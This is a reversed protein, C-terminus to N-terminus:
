ARPNAIIYESRVLLYKYLKNNKNELRSLYKTNWVPAHNSHPLIHTLSSWLDWLTIWFARIQQVVPCARLQFSPSSHLNPIDSPYSYWKCLMIDFMWLLNSDNMTASQKVPVHLSFLNLSSYNKVIRSVKKGFIFVIKCSFSFFSLSKDDHFLNIIHFFFISIDKYVSQM